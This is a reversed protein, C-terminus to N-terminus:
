YLGGDIYSASVAQSATANMIGVVTFSGSSSFSGTYIFTDIDVDFDLSGTFLIEDADISLSGSISQSGSFINSGTTAFITSNLGDLLDANGAYSSTIANSATANMLGIVTFSGTSAFSGTFEFTDVDALIDISGTFTQTGNFNNSGTTAFVTSNLGDLLDANNAYSASTANNAWSGTGLLNGVFNSATVSGTVTLNSEIHTRKTPFDIRISSSVIDTDIHDEGTAVPVRGSILGVEDGLTGYNKPGAILIASNYAAGTENEYIWHNKFSDWLLSGSGATSGSDTVSIGAFRVLDDDNLIIRSTGVTYQSSTVYQTSMTAATIVGLVTLSGSINVDERIGVGGRVILAGEEYNGSNTDNLITQVGTFSNSGTTTITQIGGTNRVDIQTSSSVIGSPLITPAFSASVAYSATGVFGVGNQISSTFSSGSVSGQIITPGKLIAM